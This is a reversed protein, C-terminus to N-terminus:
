GSKLQQLLKEAADKEAFKSGSALLKQLLARADSARGSRDLAVAYHYQINADGPYLASAATLHALAEETKGQALLIWGLTDEIAGNGPALALAREATKQAKALDGQQQYIWAINNLAPADNPRELALKQYAAIALTFEKDNLYLSALASQLALDDPNVKLRAQLLEEAKDPKGKRAYLQALAIAVESDKPRNAAATQLLSLADGDRGNKEYLEASILEYTPNNPDSKAFSRAQALGADLGGAAGDLRILDGKLATNRPAQAIAERLVRRAEAYYKAGSLLAAYRLLIPASNPALTYARKYTSLAGTKDGAVLQVQGLTDLVAPNTAFQAALQEAVAKAQPVHQRQLELKVLAIAPAPNGPASDRARNLYEEAEEWKQRTVAIEALGLLIAINGPKKALLSKYLEAAADVRGTAIDLQVMNRAAPLFEPDIGLAGRLAKEAAAYDGQQLLTRGLLTQYLASKPDRKVLEAAASQAEKFRGSALDVLVLTPGAVTAGAESEFVQELHDLGEQGKGTGIEAVALDTDIAPNKPELAAAKKFLELARDTKGEASYAKGLLSMTPVDPPTRDAFPELYGVARGPADQRLAAVAALRAVGIVDPKKALYKSFAQEALAYQHLQFEILGQLYYGTWFLDFAPSIRQVITNAEAYHGQMTLEYARLYGAEVNNPAAKLLPDLDADVAAYNKKSLNVEIRGVRAVPNHPNIQLADDFQKLAGKLDGQVELIQGKVAIAADLRPHAALVSDILAGAKKPDKVALFRAFAIKAPIAQPDLRVADRLAAEAKHEHHLASDALGIALRVKSELAPAREGPQIQGILDAFKNQRLLAEALVPLYDAEQAHRQQAARAEIEATGPNGLALHIKALDIRIKPDNPAAQEANRLEILAARLNGKQLYQHAQEVYDLASPAASAATAMAATATAALVAAVVACRWQRKSRAQLMAKERKPSRPDRM